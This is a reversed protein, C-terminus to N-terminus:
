CQKTKRSRGKSRPIGVAGRQWRVIGQADKNDAVPDVRM